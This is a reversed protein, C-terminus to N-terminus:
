CILFHVKLLKIFTTYYGTVCTIQLKYEDVLLEMPVNVCQKQKKFFICKNQGRRDPNLAALTPNMM